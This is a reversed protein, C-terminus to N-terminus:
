EKHEFGKIKGTEHIKENQLFFIEWYNSGVFLVSSSTKGIGHGHVQIVFIPHLLGTVRMIHYKEVFIISVTM